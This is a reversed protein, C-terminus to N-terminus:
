GGAGTTAAPRLSGALVRLVISPKFLAAPPDVLGSVNLFQRTLVPDRTACAQLRRLYADVARRMAPRPHGLLTRDTGVALQWPTDVAKATASFFRRALEQRGGALVDRLAIAELAAVTMGQGFLPNFSCIGDGIVLLGEPFRSLREYYRRRSAPYRHQHADELWEADCLAAYVHAPAVSRAFALFGDHDSPPHHGSYGGLTLMFHDDEQEFLGLGTPRGPAATVLVLRLDGLAGPRLRVRRSTYMVDVTVVEEEPADYGLEGLWTLARGGRGTADVVLDAALTEEAGDRPSVRVGIVRETSAATVPRLATCGDRIVVNRLGRVEDRVRGELYPRSPQYGPDTLPAGTRCMLRGNVEFWMNASGYNRPVGDAAMKELLEPFLEDLIQVGRPLLSHAHRAQPVGKRERADDPLPDREVITVQEYADALVRASLLGAMSAGLVIAHGGSREMVGGPKEAVATGLVKINV